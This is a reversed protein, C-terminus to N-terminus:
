FNIDSKSVLYGFLIATSRLNVSSNLIRIDQKEDVVMLANLNLAEVYAGAVDAGYAIMVVDTGIKLYAANGFTSAKYSLQLTLGTIILKKGDPVLYVRIDDNNAYNNASIFVANPFM